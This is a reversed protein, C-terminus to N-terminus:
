HCEANSQCNKNLAYTYINQLTAAVHCINFHREIMKRGALTIQSVKEAPQRILSRMREALGDIDGEGALLWHNETPIIEPIGSHTTSVCPLGLAQAELLVTPTGENDGDSATKSCLIFADSARMLQCTEANSLAGAIHVQDQIELRDILNEIRKREKGEGIITLTLSPDSSAIKHFARICDLHGKKETLRGVSIWKKIPRNNWCNYHFEDLKKGLHVIHTRAPNSGLQELQRKMIESLAVISSAQIFTDQLRARWSQDQPLISADYGYFSVILPINLSIAAPLAFTGLPGFHAHIIDPKIERLRHELEPQLYSWVYHNCDLRGLSVSIRDCLRRLSWRSSLIHVKPFPRSEENDRQTTIVHCEVGQAELEVIQDYIFTESLPSFAWCIHAVRM